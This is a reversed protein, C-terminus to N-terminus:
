RLWQTRLESVQRVMDDFSKPKMEKHLIKDFIKLPKLSRIELNHIRCFSKILELESMRHEQNM